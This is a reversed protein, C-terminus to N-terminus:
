SGREAPVGAGYKKVAYWRYMPTAKLLQIMRWARSAKVQALRVRPDNESPPADWGPGFRVRAAARYLPNRKLKQFARWFNSNEIYDLEAKALLAQYVEDDVTTASQPAIGGAALQERLRWADMHAAFFMRDKTALSLELCQAFLARHHEIMRQVMESRRKQTQSLMSGGAHKRYFFLPEPVCRGHYGIALLAIWFDWDEFGYVMDPQYGGAEDFARRRVVATAVSLNEVLLRRPDYEPCEWSGASADFFKVHSYAYGLTDDALLPPLLRRIFQPDLKDDADLAVYYPASTARIGTNRAAALGANDQRIVRTGAARVQELTQLTLADTSGDDVVVVELRPYNLNRVSDLTEPLFKGHNYCPIVIAVPPDSPM